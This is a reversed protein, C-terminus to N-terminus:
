FHSVIRRPKTTLRFHSNVGDQEFSLAFCVIRAGFIMDLFQGGGTM